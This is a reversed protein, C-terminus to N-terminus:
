SIKLTYNSSDFIFFDRSGIRKRGGATVQARMASDPVTGYNLVTNFWNLKDSETAPYDYAIYKNEIAGFDISFDIIAETFGANVSMSKTLVMTSLNPETDFADWRIQILQATGTLMVTDSAHLGNSDTVTVKFVYQGVGFNSATLTATNTGSLTVSGGSVKEWLYSVIPSSGATAVATFTATGGVQVSQDAGANVTPPILIVYDGIIKIMKDILGQAVDDYQDLAVKKELASLIRKLCTYSTPICDCGKKLDSSYEAQLDSFYANGRNIDDIASQTYNM